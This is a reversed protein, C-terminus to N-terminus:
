VLSNSKISVIGSQDAASAIVFMDDVGIGLLLFPLLNHVGSTKYGMLAALGFSSGYALGITIIGGIAV